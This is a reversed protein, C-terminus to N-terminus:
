NAWIISDLVTVDAEYSCHLGGGYGTWHPDNADGTINGAITCHSIHLENFWNCSVGGGDRRSRNETVLCNYLDVSQNGNAAFYLGGGSTTTLNRSIDCGTILDPGAFSYIGGGQAVANGDAVMTTTVILNPDTPDFNPDTTDAPITLNPDAPDLTFYSTTPVFRAAENYRIRCDVIASDPSDVCFLGAGRASTNFAVNCDVVSLGNSDRLYIGGGDEGAANHILISQDVIGACNADFYVGGGHDAAIEGFTQAQEAVGAESGHFELFLTHLNFEM